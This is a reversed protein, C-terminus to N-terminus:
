HILVFSTLKSCKTLFNQLVRIKNIYTQVISYKAFNPKSTVVQNPQPEATIINIVLHTPVEPFDNSKLWEPGAFWASQKLQRMSVGPIRVPGLLDSIM